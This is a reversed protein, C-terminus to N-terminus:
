LKNIQLEKVMESMSIMDDKANRVPYVFGKSTSIHKFKIGRKSVDGKERVSLEEKYIELLRSKRFIYFKKETGILFYITQDDKLIGSNIYIRNGANSKEQYEIYVNGYKEILTDNKIEIGLANEGLEYQGQPTLYADIEIDFDNKLINAIYNEFLFSDQLKEKYYKTKTRDSWMSVKPKYLTDFQTKFHDVLEKNTVMWNDIIHRNKKGEIIWKNYEEILRDTLEFDHYEHLNIESDNNIILKKFCFILLYERYNTGNTFKLFSM